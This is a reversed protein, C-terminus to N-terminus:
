LSPPLHNRTLSHTPPHTLPHPVSHAQVPHNRDQPQTLSLTLSHSHIFSHIFSDLLTPSHTLSHTLSHPSRTLSHTLSHTLSTFSHTLSHTLSHCRISCLSLSWACVCVCVCVSSRHKEDSMMSLTCAGAKQLMADPCGLMKVLEPVAGEAVMINAQTSSSHALFGLVQALHNTIMRQRSTVQKSHKLRAVIVPTVGIQALSALARKKTKSWGLMKEITLLAAHQVQEEDNDVCACLRRFGHESHCIELLSKRGLSAQGLKIAALASEYPAIEALSSADDDTQQFQQQRQQQDVPPHQHPEHTLLIEGASIATSSPQPQQPQQPQQTTTPQHPHELQPLLARVVNKTQAKKLQPDHQDNGLQQALPIQAKSPNPSSGTQAPPIQAEVLIAPAATSTATELTVDEVKVRQSMVPAATSTATELPMDEVKVRQQPPQSYWQNQQQNPLESEHRQRKWPKMFKWNNRTATVTQAFIHSSGDDLFGKVSRIGQRYVNLVSGTIELWTVRITFYFGAFNILKVRPAQPVPNKALLFVLPFCVTLCYNGMKPVGAM